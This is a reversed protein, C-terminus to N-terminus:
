AVRRAGGCLPKRATVYIDLGLARGVTRLLVPRVWSKPNSWRQTMPRGTHKAFSLSEFSGLLTRLRGVSLLVTEPAGHGSTDFDLLKRREQAIREPRATLDTRAFCAQLTQRPASLWQRYSFQNYLMLVATGGPKLVRHVEAFARVVDGTHHLCGISVVFDFADAAFPMALASGRVAQGNGKAQRLRHNMMEVPGPSIDLGQYDAGAEALKQGVTGYGLGIELVRKGAMREPRVIPLLYPYMRLYADDFRRLSEPSRDRLDVHRALHTGCLENWFDANARDIATQDINTAQM